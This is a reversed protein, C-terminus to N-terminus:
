YTQVIMDRVISYEIGNLIVNLVVYSGVLFPSQEGSYNFSFILGFIRNDYSVNKTVDLDGEFKEDELSNLYDSVCSFEKITYMPGYSYDIERILGELLPSPVISNIYFEGGLSPNGDIDFYLGLDFVFASGYDQIGNDEANYGYM